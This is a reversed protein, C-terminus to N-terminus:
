YNDIFSKKLNALFTSKKKANDTNEANDANKYIDLDKLRNLILSGQVQFSSKGHATTRTKPINYKGDDALRTRQQHITNRKKFYSSLSPPLSNHDLDWM